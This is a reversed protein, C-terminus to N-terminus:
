SSKKVKSTSKAGAKDTAPQANAEQAGKAAQSRIFHQLLELQDDTFEPFDPMGRPRLRGEKVVAKLSDLNLPIPSARLDPAAGGSVAGSGHCWVCNSVFLARGQEVKTEDVKFEAPAIPKPFFPPEFMPMTAKGDLAFTFLRRTQARYAWGYNAVASGGALSVGAGGFGVLISVYQKGDVSYTIPPASIGSGLFMHWLAKGTKADYAYLNGNARGQFVLDGATVMTGPNWFGDAQVEWVKKQKIPDWALLSSVGTGKPIDGGLGIDVAPDFNLNPSKWDKKISGDNFLAPLEVKPLYALGTRPSYSMAHWSHAGFPSPYILAPAGEYRAGPIEIPRGTKMDIGSAWTVKAIKEASILKGNSRDLVYFFGNKPAHVLAKVMQGKI